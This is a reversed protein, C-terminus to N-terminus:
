VYGLTMKNSRGQRQEKRMEKLQQEKYFSLVTDRPLKIYSRDADMLTVSNGEKSASVVKLSDFHMSDRGHGFLSGTQIDVNRLTDGIRLNRDTSGRVLSPDNEIRCGSDSVTDYFPRAIVKEPQHRRIYDENLPMEKVAEHYLRAILENTSENGHSMRQLLKQTRRREDEPMQSVIQRALRLADCPSNAEKRCYVSLNHRFNCATNDRQRFFDNYQTECLKKWAPSNEDFHNEFREPATIERFREVTVTMRSDGNSLVYTKDSANFKTVAFEKFSELGRQTYMAFEPIVTGKVGREEDAFVIARGEALRAKGAEREQRDHLLTDLTAKPLEMKGSGDEITYKRADKDYGAVVAGEVPQLNGDAMVAFSPLVTKGYVIPADPDFRPSDQPSREGASASGAAQSEGQASGEAAALRERAEAPQNREKERAENESPVKLSSDSSMESIKSIVSILEKYNEASFSMNKLLEAAKDLSNRELASQGPSSGASEPSASVADAENKPYHPNGNRDFEVKAAAEQQMKDVAEAQEYLEQVQEPDANLFPNEIEATEGEEDFWHPNGQEDLYDPRPNQEAEYDAEMAASDMGGNAQIQEVGKDVEEGEGPAIDREQMHPQKEDPEYTGFIEGSDIKRNSEEDPSTMSLWEQYEKVKEKQEIPNQNKLNNVLTPYSEKLESLLNKLEKEGERDSLGVTGVNIGDPDFIVTKGDFSKIKEILGNRAIENPIRNAVYNQFLMQFDDANERGSEQIASRHYAYNILGEYMEKTHGTYGEVENILESAKVTNKMDESVENPIKIEEGNRFFDNWSNVIDSKRVIRNDASQLEDIPFYVRAVNSWGTIKKDDVYRCLGDETWKQILDTGNKATLTRDHITRINQVELSKKGNSVRITSNVNVALAIPNGDKFEDTLILRSDVKNETRSKDSDFALVPDYLGCVASKIEDKTLHHREMAKKVVSVPLTIETEDSGIRRLYEPTKPLIFRGDNPVIGDDCYADIETLVANMENEAQIQERVSKGFNERTYEEAARRMDDKIKEPLTRNRGPRESRYDGDVFVQADFINEPRDSALFKEKGEGDLRYELKLGRGNRLEKIGLMDLVAEENAATYEFGLFSVEKGGTFFYVGYNSVSLTRDPQEISETREQRIDKLKLIAKEFEDRSIPANLAKPERGIASYVSKIVKDNNNAELDYGFGALRGADELRFYGRNSAAAAIANMEGETISYPLKREEDLIIAKDKALSAFFSEANYVAEREEMEDAM